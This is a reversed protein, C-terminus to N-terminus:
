GYNTTELVNAGSFKLFLSKAWAIDEDTCGKLLFYTGIMKPNPSKEIKAHLTIIDDFGIKSSKLLTIVGYKSTISVYIGHRYLTALADKLGVGFRGILRDDEM